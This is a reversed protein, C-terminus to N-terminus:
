GVYREQIEIQNKTKMEASRCIIARKGMLGKLTKIM